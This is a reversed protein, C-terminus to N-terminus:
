GRALLSRAPSAYRPLLALGGRWLCSVALHESGALDPGGPGRVGIGTVVRGTRNAQKREDDVLCMARLGLLLIPAQPLVCVIRVLCGGPAQRSFKLIQFNWSRNFTITSNTEFTIMNINNRRLSLTADGVSNFVNSNISEVSTIDDFTTVPKGLFIM